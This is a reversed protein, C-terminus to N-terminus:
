TCTFANKIHNIENNYVEIVDFRPQLDLTNQMLFQSATKIIKQQKAFNVFESAQGYKKTKRTKVEIFVLFDGDKAIIDIEGYRSRYNRVIIEYSKIYDCARQEGNNGIATTNKM